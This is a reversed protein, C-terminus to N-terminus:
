SSYSALVWANVFVLQYQYVKLGAEHAAGTIMLATCIFRMEGYIQQGQLSFSGQYESLPYYQNIATQFSAETFSPYQGAIFNYVTAETANPMSTNANPNPLDASWKAGENTNSGFLMPVRVFNGSAFAEVPRERLFLGDTIPAFPYSTSTRNALTNKGALALTDTPAARLCAMM